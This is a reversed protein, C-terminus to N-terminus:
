AHSETIEKVIANCIHRHQHKKLELKTTRCKTEKSMFPADTVQSTVSM